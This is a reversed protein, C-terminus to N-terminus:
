RLEIYRQDMSRHREVSHEVGVLLIGFTKCLQGGVRERKSQKYM